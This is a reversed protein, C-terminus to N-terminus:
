RPPWFGHERDTSRFHPKRTGEVEHRNDYVKTVGKARAAKILWAPLPGNQKGVVVVGDDDGDDEQVVKSGPFARIVTATAQEVSVAPTFSERVIGDDGVVFEIGAEQLVAMKVPVFISQLKAAYDEVAADAPIETEAWARYTAGSYNPLGVKREFTVSLRFGGSAAPTVSVDEM